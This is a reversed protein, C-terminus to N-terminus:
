LIFVRFFFIWENEEFLGYNLVSVCVFFIMEYDVFIKGLFMIYSLIYKRLRFVYYM